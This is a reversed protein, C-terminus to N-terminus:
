DEKFYPTLCIYNLATKRGPAVKSDTFRLEPAELTAKFVRCDVNVKFMNKDISRFPGLARYSMGREALFEAGDIECDITLEGPRGSAKLMVDDADSTIYVLKYYRNAQIGSLKQRLVNPQAGRALVAYRDGIKPAAWRKEINRGYDPAHGTTITGQVNWGDLGDEFDPNSVFDARYNFGHQKSLMDTRGDIAYHRFLAATWRLMEEDTYNSGWNGTMALGDLEPVNAILNFQMDLYYKLDVDPLYAATLTAPVNCNIFYLCLNAIIGPYSREMALAPELINQRIFKEAAKETPVPQCYAEYKIIGDGAGSNAANSLFESVIAATSPTGYLCYYLRRGNPLKLQPHAANYRAILALDYASFEDFAVGDLGPTTLGSDGNVAEVLAEVTQPKAVHM